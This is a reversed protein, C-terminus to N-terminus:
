GRGALSKRMSARMAGRLLDRVMGFQSSRMCVGYENERLSVTKGWSVKRPYRPVYCREPSILFKKRQAVVFLYLLIVVRIKYICCNFALLM